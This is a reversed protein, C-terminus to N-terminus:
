LESKQLLWDYNTWVQSAMFKIKNIHERIDNLGFLSIKM